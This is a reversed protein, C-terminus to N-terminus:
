IVRIIKKKIGAIRRQVTRESMCLELSIEVLSCGSVRLNFVELEERTFNCVSRLYDCEPGTFEGKLRPGNM